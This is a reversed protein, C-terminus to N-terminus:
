WKVGDFNYEILRLIDYLNPKKDTDSNDIEGSLKEVVSWEYDKDKDFVLEILKMIDYINIIGDEDTDGKIAVIYTDKVNGDNDLIEITVGTGIRDFTGLVKGTKDKARLDQTNKFNEQTLINSVTNNEVDIGTIYKQNNKTVYQLTTYPTPTPSPTPSPNPNPSSTDVTYNIRLSNDIQCAKGDVILEGHIVISIYRYKEKKEDTVDKDLNVVLDDGDEEISCLVSRTGAYKEDKMYYKTYATINAGRDKLYKVYTPLVIKGNKEKLESSNLTQTVSYVNSEYLQKIDINKTNELELRRLNSAHSLIGIDSITYNNRIKLIVLNDLQSLETVDTYTGGDIELVILDPLNSIGTLDTINNNKIKIEDCAEKSAKIIKKEDNIFLIYEKLAKKIEQYLNIDNFSMTTIEDNNYVKIGHETECGNYKIKVKAQNSALNINNELQYDTIKKGIENSYIAEIVMGDSDFNEGVIYSKKNAEKSIEIGSLELNDVTRFNITCEFVGYMENEIKINALETNEQSNITLEKDKYNVKINDSVSVKEGKYRNEYASFYLEGLNKLKNDVGKIININIEPKQNKIILNEPM